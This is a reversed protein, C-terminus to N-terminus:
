LSRAAVDLSLEPKPKFPAIVRGSFQALSPYREATGQRIILADRSLSIDATAKDLRTVTDQGAQLAFLRLRGSLQPNDWKGTVAGNRLYGLGSRPLPPGTPTGPANPRGKSPPAPPV